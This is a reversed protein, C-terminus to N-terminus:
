LPKGSLRPRLRPTYLRQKEEEPIFILSKELFAGLETKFAYRPNFGFLRITGRLKSYLVGDKELNSLQNQVTNLYYDLARAIEAPYSEGNTYLFLLIKGKKESGFIAKLM